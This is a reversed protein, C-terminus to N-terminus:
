KAELAERVKAVIEEIQMNAKVLYGKVGLKEAEHIYGAEEINSLILAPTDAGGALARIEALVELGNKGPLLIDILLVDPKTQQFQKIAEEGNRALTIDLGEKALGENLLASMFPDDEMLLVTPRRETM